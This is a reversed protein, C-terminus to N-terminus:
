KTLTLFKNGTLLILGTIPNQMPATKTMAKKFYGNEEDNFLHKRMLFSQKPLFRGNERLLRGRILYQSFDNKM